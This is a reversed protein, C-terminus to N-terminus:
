KIRRPGKNIGKKKELEDVVVAIDKYKELQRKLELNEDRLSSIDSELRDFKKKIEKPTIVRTGCDCACANGCDSPM